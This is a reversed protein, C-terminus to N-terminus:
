VSQFAWRTLKQLLKRLSSTSYFMYQNELVLVVEASQLLKEVYLADLKKGIGNVKEQDNNKKGLLDAQLKPRHVLLLLYMKTPSKAPKKFLHLVTSRRKEFHCRSSQEM